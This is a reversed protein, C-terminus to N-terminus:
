MRSSTPDRDMRTIVPIRELCVLPARTHLLAGLCIQTFAYLGCRIWIQVEVIGPAHEEAYAKANLLSRLTSMTGETHPDDPDGFVPNVVHAFKIPEKLGKTTEKLLTLLDFGLAKEEQIGPPRPRYRTLWILTHRSPLSLTAPRQHAQQPLRTDFGNIVLAGACSEAAQGAGHM